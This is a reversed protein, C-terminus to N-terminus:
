LKFGSTILNKFVGRPDYKKQVKKMRPLSAGKGYTAYPNQGPAADGMYIWDYYIGKSVLTEKLAILTSNMYASVLADDATNKYTV